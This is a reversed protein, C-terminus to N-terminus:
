PRSEDIVEVQEPNYIHLAGAVEPVTCEVVIRHNGSLTDFVAVVVGPWKYGRVKQVKDGIQM